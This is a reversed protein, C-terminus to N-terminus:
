FYIYWKCRNKINRVVSKTAKELMSSIDTVNEVNTEKSLKESSYSEKPEVDINVYMDYLVISATSIIFVALIKTLINLFFHNKKNEVRHKKLRKM